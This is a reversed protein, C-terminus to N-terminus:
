GNGCKQGQLLHFLMWIGDMCISSRLDAIDCMNAVLRGVIFLDRDVKPVHIQTPDIEQHLLPEVRVPTVENPGRDSILEAVM